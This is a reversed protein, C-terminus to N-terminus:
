SVGLPPETESKITILRPKEPVTLDIPGSSEGIRTNEVVPGLRLVEKMEEQRYGTTAPLVRMLPGRDGGHSTSTSRRDDRAPKDDEWERERGVRAVREREEARERDRDLEEATATARDMDRKREEATLTSNKLDRAREAPTLSV